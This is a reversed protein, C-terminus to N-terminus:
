CTEPGRGGRADSHEAGRPPAGGGRGAGAGARSNGAKRRTISAKRPSRSLPALDRSLLVSEPQERRPPPARGPSPLCSTASGGAADHAPPSRSIKKKKKVATATTRSHEANTQPKAPQTRTRWGRFRTETPEAMAPDAGWSNGHATPVTPKCNFPTKPTSTTEGLQPKRSWKIITGVWNTSTLFKQCCRGRM